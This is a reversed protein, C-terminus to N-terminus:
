SSASAPQQFVKINMSESTPQAKRFRLEKPRAVGINSARTMVAGESRGLKSAIEHISVEKTYLKRLRRDDETTWRPGSRSNKKVWPRKLGKGLAKQGIAHWSRTPFAAQIIDPTSSSWLMELLSEEEQTWLKDRLLKERPRVINVRQKLGVKWIITAEILSQDHRLEVRDVLLSILRNRLRSPYRQWEVGLNELFHIVRDLDVPTATEPDPQRLLLELQARTEEILQWYTEERQRDDSGLYGKLRAM